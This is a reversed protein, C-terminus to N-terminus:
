SEDEVVDAGFTEIHFETASRADELAAEATVGEGVVGGRIGLPYAVYADEHQEVVFKIYKLMAADM